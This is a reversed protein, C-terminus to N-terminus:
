AAVKKAAQMKAVCEVIVKNATNGRGLTLGAAYLQKTTEMPFKKVLAMAQADDHLPDYRYFKLMPDDRALLHEDSVHSSEMGMAEACLRTMELDTM